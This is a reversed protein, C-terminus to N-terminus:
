TGIINSFGNSIFEQHIQTSAMLVTGIYEKLFQSKKICLEILRKKM